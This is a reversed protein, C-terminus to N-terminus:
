RTPSLAHAIAVPRWHADATDLMASFADFEAHYLQDDDSPDNPDLGRDAIAQRLLRDRTRRPVSWRRARGEIVLDARHEDFDPSSETVIFALRPFHRSVEHFHDLEEGDRAQFVYTAAYVDPASVKRAGDTYLDGGEGCEWCPLFVEFGGARTHRFPPWAEDRFRRLAGRRGVATVRVNSWTAM